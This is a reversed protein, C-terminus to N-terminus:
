WGKSGRSFRTKDGRPDEKPEELTARATGSTGLLGGFLKGVESGPGKKAGKKHRTSVMFVLLGHSLPHVNQFPAKGLPSRDIIAM